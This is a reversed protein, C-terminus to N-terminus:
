DISVHLLPTLDTQSRYLTYSRGDLGNNLKIYWTFGYSRRNIEAAASIITQRGIKETLSKVLFNFHARDTPHFDATNHTLVELTRTPTNYTSQTINM